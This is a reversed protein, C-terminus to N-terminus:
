ENPWGRRWAADIDDLNPLSAAGGFYYTHEGTVGNTFEVGAYHKGGREYIVTTSLRGGAENLVDRTLVIVGDM